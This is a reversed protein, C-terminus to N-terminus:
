VASSQATTYQVQDHRILLSPRAEAAQEIKMKNERLRARFRQRNEAAIADIEAQSKNLEVFGGQYNEKRDRDRQLIIL